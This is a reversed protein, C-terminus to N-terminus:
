DEVYLITATAEPIYTRYQTYQTKAGPTRPLTLYPLHGVRELGEVVVWSLKKTQTNGCSERGIKTWAWFFGGVIAYMGVPLPSVM